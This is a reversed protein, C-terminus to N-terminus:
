PQPNLEKATADFIGRVNSLQSAFNGECVPGRYYYYPGFQLSYRLEDENLSFRLEYTVPVELRVARINIVMRDSTLDLDFNKNMISPLMYMVEERMIPGISLLFYLSETSDSLVQEIPMVSEYRLCHKAISVIVKQGHQKLSEELPYFLFMVNAHFNKGYNKVSTLMKECMIHKNTTDPIAKTNDKAIEDIAKSTEHFCLYAMWVGALTSFLRVRRETIKSGCINLWIAFQEMADGRETSECMFKFMMNLQKLTFNDEDVILCTDVDACVAHENIWNQTAACDDYFNQM